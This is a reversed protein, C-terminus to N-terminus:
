TNSGHVEGHSTLLVVFTRATIISTM